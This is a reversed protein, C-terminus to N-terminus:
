NEIQNQGLALAPGRLNRARDRVRRVRRRRALRAGEGAELLRGQRRPYREGAGGHM